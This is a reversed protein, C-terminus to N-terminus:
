GTAVTNKVADLCLIDNNHEMFFKQKRTDADLVVGVGAVHYVIDGKDNIKVNNRVDNCRFGHIWELELNVEPHLDDTVSLKDTIKADILKKM